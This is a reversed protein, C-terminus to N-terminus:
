GVRGGSDGRHGDASESGSGGRRAVPGTPRRFPPRSRNGRPFVLPRHSPRDAVIDHGLGNPRPNTHYGGDARVPRCETWGFESGCATM